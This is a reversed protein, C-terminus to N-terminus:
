GRSSQRGHQLSEGSFDLTLLQCVFRGYQQYFPRDLGVETRKLEIEEASANKGMFAPVPDRVRLVLMLLMLIGLYVPICYLTRRVIYTWPITAAIRTFINDSM